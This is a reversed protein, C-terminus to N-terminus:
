AEKRHLPDPINRGPFVTTVRLDIGLGVAKHCASLRNKAGLKELINDMHAMVKRKNCGLIEAVTKNYHGLRVLALVQIEETSLIEKVAAINQTTEPSELLQVDM